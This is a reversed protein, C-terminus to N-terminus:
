IAFIGKDQLKDLMALSAKATGVTLLRAKVTGHVVCKASTEGNDGTPDCPVDVVACPTDSATALAYKAEGTDQPVKKLLTGVPIPAVVSGDLLLVHSIVPHDDTAAREGGAKFKGLHGENM